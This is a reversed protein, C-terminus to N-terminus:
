STKNVTYMNTFFAILHYSLPNKALSRQETKLIGPVNVFPSHSAFLLYGEQKGNIRNSDRSCVDTPRDGQCNKYLSWGNGYIISFIGSELTMIKNEQVSKRASESQKRQPLKRFIFFRSLSLIAVPNRRLRARAGDASL